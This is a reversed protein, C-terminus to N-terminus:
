FAGKYGGNRYTLIEIVLNGDADFSATRCGPGDSAPPEAGCGDVIAEIKGNDLAHYVVLKSLNPNKPVESRAVTITVKFATEFTQGFNVNVKSWEGFPKAKCDRKPCDFSVGSGDAIFAPVHQALGDLATSQRNATGLAKGNALSDGNTLTWKGAQDGGGPLITVTETEVLADGHSNNDGAVIGTTNIEFTIQNGDVTAFPVAYAVRVTFSDRARLAGFSCYFDQGVGPCGARPSSVYVPTDSVNDFLYLSSINSPGRNTMTIDFAQAGGESVGDPALQVVELTWRPPAASAGPVLAALLLGAALVGSILTRSHTRKV